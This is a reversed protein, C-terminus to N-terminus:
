GPPYSTAITSAGPAQHSALLGGLPSERPVACHRCSRRQAQALTVSGPASRMLANPSVDANNETNSLYASPRVIRGIMMRDRILRAPARAGAIAVSAASHM